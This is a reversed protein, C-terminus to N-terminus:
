RALYPSSPRLQYAERRALLPQLYVAVTGRYAATARLHPLETRQVDAECFVSLSGHSSNVVTGLGACWPDAGTAVEVKGM